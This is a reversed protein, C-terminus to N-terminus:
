EALRLIAAKVLERMVFLKSENKSMICTNKTCMVAVSEATALNAPKGVLFKEIEALRYPVPAVAGFVLSAEIIKNNETVFNSALAVTAFDISKRVRNKDYHTVGKTKPIRIEVILEGPDLNHSAQLRSCLFEESTVVRNTTVIQAKLMVLVNALDSSNASYCACNMCRAAEKVALDKSITSSDEKYLSREGLPVNEAKQPIKNEIGQRCFKVLGRASGVEKFITGLERNIARAADRGTQVARIVTAPGTAADGGAYFNNASTKGTLEDVAILNRRTKELFGNGLFSLDVVQGTALLISDTKVKFTTERDYSPSFRSQNDFVSVCKVLEIAKIKKEEYIARSVGWGNMIEIGEEEARKVEELSAPMESRSELCALTVKQAGLRRASMAVDMAVNGGGVVFVEGRDKSTIWMKIERLFELGFETLEEGDFGLVPRKWAGTALFIKDYDRELDSILLDESIAKNLEFKVGMSSWASTVREVYSKPLRYEPISYRLCGGAEPMRDFITVEHGAQRLYYAAALGAPGSGVLAVKRGSLSVPPKYFLDPNDLIYDGLSREIDHVSVAEDTTLRNCGSECFHACIRSTLVPIPNFRLIINAAGEWDDERLRALYGPIDTGAPCETSCPSLHSKKGGFVSHYRNEGRIALCEKGGKRYCNIRGGIEDPYRYYWCRVDQCLNGALTALPRILPSAVSYAAEALATYGKLRAIDDLRAGAGLILEHDNEKIQDFGPIRKLNVVKEPYTELIGDKLVGLLDTGGAMAVKAGSGKALIASAETFSKANIYEFNKV